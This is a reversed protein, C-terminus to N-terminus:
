YNEKMMDSHSAKCWPIRILKAKLVEEYSLMKEFICFYFIFLLFVMLVVLVPISGPDGPHFGPIRDGIRRRNYM